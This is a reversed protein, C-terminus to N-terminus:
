KSDLTIVGSWAAGTSPNKRVKEIEKLYFQSPGDNDGRKKLVERLLQECQDFERKGFRDLADSFLTVWEAASGSDRLLGIVEYVAEPRSKGAVIFRGLYRCHISDSLQRRTSESILLDTGLFKNMGELRSAFNTAEGILTYDFRYESGLNGALVKGTNIGIRTRLRRGQFEKLKAHRMGIGALVAREAPQPDALPAGWVAMVSDGIYKIIMGDQEFIARTTESFYDTLLKSVETPGLSESIRTFEELDTFMITAEVETGGLTLDFESNAIRDAMYPSYYSAFARRLKERRRSEVMYQFGVAWLLAVLTQAAAPTLWSFWIHRTLQFYIAIWAFACGAVAAVAMAAWPKFRPLGAGVVIAWLWIVLVEEGNTIRNLWNGQLLNLLSFAHIAAGASMRNAMGDRNAGAKWRSFPTAFEDRAAGTIDAEGARGGVVVIKDRFFGSPLAGTELALDLNVSELHEPPCYYNLWRTALRAEKSKSVRSELITAGMWSLSPLDEAGPDLLRVALDPDPTVQALGWGAAAHALVPIPPMPSSTMSDGQVQKLYNGALVVRQNKDIATAFEADVGPRPDPYDFLIDFLVLRAGESSLRDLLRTYFRRSLSEGAPEGLNSKIKADVYVMVLQEPVRRSSFMFPLDYSLRALGDGVRFLCLQGALGALLIGGLLALWTVRRNHHLLTAAM